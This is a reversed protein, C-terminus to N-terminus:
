HGACRILGQMCAYEVATLQKTGIYMILFPSVQESICHMNLLLVGSANQSVM